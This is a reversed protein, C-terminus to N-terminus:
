RARWQWLAGKMIRWYSRQLSRGLDDLTESRKFSEAYRQVASPSLTVLILRAFMGLALAGRLFGTRFPGIHKRCYRVMNLFFWESSEGAELSQTSSGGMHTAQAEACYVIRGGADKLRKCLDVDEFWAPTLGEDFGGVREFASRRVMLCAGAPQDVESSEEYSFNLLRYRRNWPNRPFVQNILLAECMLDIWRPFSRVAFGRQPVGEPSVLKAGAAVVGPDSEFARTLAFLTSDNIECDPNLFLIRPSKGERAGQNCAAAFGRNTPNLTERAAGQRPRRLIELTSDTSGNDVLILQSFSSSAKQLANLCRELTHASNWTVVVIDIPLPPHM